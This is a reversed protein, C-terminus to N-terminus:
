VRAQKKEESHAHTNGCLRGHQVLIGSHGSLDCVPEPSSENDRLWDCRLGLHCLPNHQNCGAVVGM